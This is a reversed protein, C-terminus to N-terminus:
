ICGAGTHYKALETTLKHQTLRSKGLRSTLVQLVPGYRVNMGMTNFQDRSDHNNLKLM